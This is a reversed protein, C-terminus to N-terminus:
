WWLSTWTPSLTPFLYRQCLFIIIIITTATTLIQTFTAQQSFTIPLSFNGLACLIECALPKLGSKLAPAEEVIHFIFLAQRSIWMAMKAFRSSWRQTPQLQSREGNASTACSRFVIRSFSFSSFALNQCINPAFQLFPDLLAHFNCFTKRRCNKFVVLGQPEM